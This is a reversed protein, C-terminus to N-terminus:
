RALIWKALLLAEEESAQLNSPMPVDGWVGVSGKRITVALAEAAGPVGAYKKAIDAYSPGLIKQHTLHCSLCNRAAALRAGADVSPAAVVLSTALYLPLLLLTRIFIHNM